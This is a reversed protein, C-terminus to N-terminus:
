WMLDDPVPFDKYPDDEEAASTTDTQRHDVVIVSADRQAIMTAAARPVLEYHGDVRVIVLQGKALQQRLKANILLSKVAGADTFKYSDDGDRPQKYHQVIQKIQAFRENRARQENDAMALERDRAAKEAMLREGESPSTDAGQQRKQKQTKAKEREVDKAKNKDVLGAKLLQDQLSNRM